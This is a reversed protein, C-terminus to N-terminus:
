HMVKVDREIEDFTATDFFIYVHQLPAHEVVAAPLLCGKTPHQLFSFKSLNPLIPDFQLHKVYSKKYKIYEETSLILGGVKFDRPPPFLANQLQKADVATYKALELGLTQFGSSIQLM